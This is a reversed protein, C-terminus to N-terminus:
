PDNNTRKDQKQKGGYQRNKQGTKTQWRLTQEKTRNKNAVTNDTRKDQKQEGGYQRNKQSKSARIVGKTDQFKESLINQTFLHYINIIIHLTILIM